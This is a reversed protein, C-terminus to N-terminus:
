PKRKREEQLVRLPVRAGYPTSRALRAFHDYVVRAVERLVADTGDAYNTMVTLVFPRDPLNVLAWTTSVGEIEGPKSAVPISDPIVARVAEAKPIELIRRMRECSGRSVPLECRALRAMFAAAEATTSLNEEGRASSAPRIMKRQLRTRRLGLRELTRNVSDMGVIDILLNAATNDSLVIMLTALDENALASGGDSFEALVGSGLTRASATITTRAKLLAPRSEAQRFLELLVPVKIASGQPFLLQENVGVTTSDTLDLAQAGLVGPFDDAIRTLERALKARLIDRHTQQGSIARPALLALVVLAASARARMCIM